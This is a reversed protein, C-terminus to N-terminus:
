NNIKKGCFLCHHIRVGFEEINTNKGDRDLEIWTLMWKNENKFVENNDMMWEMEKCDCPYDIM